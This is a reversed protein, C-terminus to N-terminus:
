RFGLRSICYQCSPLMRGLTLIASGKISQIRPGLLREELRGPGPIRAAAYRHCILGDKRSTGPCQRRRWPYESDQGADKAPLKAPLPM